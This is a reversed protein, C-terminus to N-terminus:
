PKFVIQIRIQDDHWLDPSIRLESKNRSHGSFFYPTPLLIM